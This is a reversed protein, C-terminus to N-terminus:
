NSFEDQPFLTRKKAKLLAKALADRQERPLEQLDVKQEEQEKGTREIVSRQTNKWAKGDLNTALFIGAAVNPAYVKKVTKKEEKGTGKDVVTVEEETFGQAIRFLGKLVGKLLKARYEEEAEKIDEELNKEKIIIKWTSFAIGLVKCLETTSMGGYSRTGKERILALGQEAIEDYSRGGLKAASKVPMPEIGMEELRKVAADARSNAEKCSVTVKVGKRVAM